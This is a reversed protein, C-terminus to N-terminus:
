KSFDMTSDMTSNILDTWSNDELLNWTWNLNNWTWVKPEEKIEPEECKWYERSFITFDTFDIKNDFNYDFFETSPVWNKYDKSFMTFDRFDICKDKVSNSLEFISKKKSTAHLKEVDAYWTFEKTLWFYKWKSYKLDEKLDWFRVWAASQINKIIMVYNKNMKQKETSIYITKNNDSSFEKTLVKLTKSPHTKEFIEFNQWKQELSSPMLWQDFTLAIKTNSLVELNRLQPAIKEKDFWYFIKHNDTYSDEKLWLKETDAILTYKKWPEQNLTEITVTTADTNIKLNKIALQDTDDNTNVIKFNTKKINDRNLPNTFVAQVTTPSLSIAMQLKPSWLWEEPLTWDSVTIYSYWEVSRWWKQIAITKVRYREVSPKTIKPIVINDLRFWQWKSWEKVSHKMCVIREDQNKCNESSSNEKWWIYKALNWFNLIVDEIEHWQNEVFVNMAFTTKWDNVALNPENYGKEENIKITDKSNAFAWSSPDLVQLKVTTATENWQKDYAVLQFQHWWPIVSNPVTIWKLDYIASKINVWDVDDWQKELKVVDWWIWTLDARVEVIDWAWDEDKVITSIDFSTLWDNPIKWRNLRVYNMDYNDDVNDIKRVFQPASWSKHSYKYIKTAEEWSKDFVNFVINYDWAKIDSPLEIASQLRFIESKKEIRWSFTNSPDNAPADTKKSYLAWNNIVWYNIDSSSTDTKKVVASMAYLERYWLWLSTLDVNVSSVDSIWDADSVKVFVDINKATKNYVVTEWSLEPPASVILDNTVNLTIEWTSTNWETDEATIEISQNWIPTTQLVKIWKLAFWIKNDVIRSKTMEAVPSWWLSSLNATVRNIYNVWNPSDVQAWLTTEMKNNNLIKAPTFYSKDALINVEPNLKWWNEEPNALYMANELKLVQSWSSVSVDYIWEKKWTFDFSIKNESDLSSKVWAISWSFNEINNWFFKVECGTWIECYNKSISLFNAWTSNLINDAWISIKWKRWTWAFLKMSDDVFQINEIKISIESNASLKKLYTEIKLFATWKSINVPNANMLTIKAKWSDQDVLIDKFDFWYFNDFSLSELAQKIFIESSDYSLDFNIMQINKLDKWAFFRVSWAQSTVNEYNWM